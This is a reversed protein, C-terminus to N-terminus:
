YAKEITCGPYYHALIMRYTYGRKAMGIAGHQCMGVGHGNGGGSISVFAIRDREMVKDLRFMVSPLIAGRRPDPELIWRIRDGEVVFTQLTTEITLKTVRGSHSREEIRMDKVAGVEEESVGLQRPLTIRLINGIERGTFNYRWRFRRYERCFARDDGVARDPVGRLYDAPERDPWVQRIDSTHGGCCACYYARVVNGKYDMVVGRTDRVAGSAVKTTGKLGRYVQDMVSAHVDFVDGKHQAMKGLAYTRAAVAQSKVADYGEAGPDGIEHPLVGELYREIPLVNILMMRGEGSAVVQMKGAYAVGEYTLVSKANPVIWADGDVAGLAAGPETEVRLSRGRAEIVAGGRGAVGVIEMGEKSRVTLGGSSGIRYSTGGDALLVRIDPEEVSSAAFRGTGGPATCSSVLAL